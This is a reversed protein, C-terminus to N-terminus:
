FGISIGGRIVPNFYPSRPDDILDWLVTFSAYARDGIPQRIGGGVYLASVWERQTYEEELFSDFYRVKVNVMQFESQAYINNYIVLRTFVNGNYITNVDRTAGLNQRWYLVGTGLGVAWADTVRYGVQPSAGAIVGYTNFSLVVDGGYFLRDSFSEEKQAQGCICVLLFSSLILYKM